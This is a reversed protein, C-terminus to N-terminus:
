FSFGANKLGRFPEQYPLKTYFLRGFFSKVMTSLSVSQKKAHSLIEEAVPDNSPENFGQMEELVRDRFAAHKNVIEDLETLENFSATGMKQKRILIEFRDQLFTRQELRKHHKM